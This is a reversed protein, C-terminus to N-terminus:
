LVGAEQMVVECKRRIESAVEFPDGNVYEPRFLEVSLAGSYGKEALKRLMPAVPAVGDGPILRYDNNTLERPADLLDQFHVHALEGPKLLDLDQLKSLGSWFHFFDIMSRVDPHGAARIVQLSTSLTALHTSTRLFEPMSILGSAAAIEATERIAAATADFDESTLRRSTVSPAYIKKLGLSAFQDCYRRWRELSQIRDPGPLWIDPLIAAASVPTLGNDTLVSRAAAITEDELFADLLENSLEVYRIGSKAWGELSGRYGAARSTNQHM